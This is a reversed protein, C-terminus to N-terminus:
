YSRALIRVKGRKTGYVVGVGPSPHFQAINVEDEDDTITCVSDLDESILSMIECVAKPERHGVVLGDRRVGFGLMIYRCTSSMRASTIAQLLQSQLKKCSHLTPQLIEGSTPDFKLQYLCVFSDPNTTIAIDLFASFYFLYTVNNFIFLDFSVSVMRQIM